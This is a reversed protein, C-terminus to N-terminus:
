PRHYLISEDSMENHIHINLKAYSIQRYLATMFRTTEYTKIATNNKLKKVDCIRTLLDINNKLANKGVASLIEISSSRVALPRIYPCLSFPENETMLTKTIDSIIYYMIRNLRSYTYNKSWLLNVFDNFNSFKNYLNYIRRALDPTVESYEALMKLAEDKSNKLIIESLKYFLIDSFDNNHLYKGTLQIHANEPIYIDAHKSNLLKERIAKASAINNLIIDSDHLVQRKIAVPTINDSPSLNNLYAISLINNSTKLIELEHMYGHESLYKNRAGPYTLGDSMLKFFEKEAINKLTNSCKILEPLENEAGFSLFDVIGLSKALEVAGKAFNQINGLSVTVPLEFVADAFQLVADARLYKDIIAADGRQVFNGSMLIIIYDAGTLKKTMKIQYLHGNHFPNYEAIIAAVQKNNVM